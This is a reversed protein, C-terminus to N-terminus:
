RSNRWFRRASEWRGLTRLHPSVQVIATADDNLLLTMGPEFFMSDREDALTLPGTSTYLLEPRDNVVFPERFARLAGRLRWLFTELWSPEPEVIDALDTLFDNPDM